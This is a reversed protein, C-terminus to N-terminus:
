FGVAVRLGVPSQNSFLNIEPQLKLYSNVQYWAFLKLSKEAYGAFIGAKLDLDNKKGKNTFFTMGVFPMYRTSFQYTNDAKREHPFYAQAGLVFGKKLYRSSVLSIGLTASPVIKDQYTGVGIDGHFELFDLLAAGVVDSKIKQNVVDNEVKVTKWPYADKRENQAREVAEIIAQNLNIELIDGIDDLSNLVFVFQQHPYTKFVRNHSKVLESAAKNLYNVLVLTDQLLQVQHVEKDPAIQLVEKQTYYLVDILPRGSVFQNQGYYTIKKVADKRFSGKVLQYDAWFNRLLSDANLKLDFEKGQFDILLRNKHGFHITVKNNNKIVDQQQFVDSRKGFDQLLVPPRIGELVTMTDYRAKTQCIGGAAIGTLLMSLIILTRFM